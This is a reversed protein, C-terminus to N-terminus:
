LYIVLDVGAKQAWDLRKLILNSFIAKLAVTLAESMLSLKDRKKKKKKKNTNMNM